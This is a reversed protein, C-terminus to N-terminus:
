GEPPLRNRCATGINRRTRPRRPANGIEHKTEQGNDHARATAEPLATDIAFPGRVLFNTARNLAGASRPLEVEGDGRELWFQRLPPEVARLSWGAIGSFGALRGLARKGGM